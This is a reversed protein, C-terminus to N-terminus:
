QQAIIKTKHGISAIVLYLGFAIYAPLLGVNSLVHVVIGFVNSKTWYYISALVIGSLSLQVSFFFGKSPIHVAGFLLSSVVIVLLAKSESKHFLQILFNIFLGRIVLEEIAASVGSIPTYWIPVHATTEGYMTWLVLVVVSLLIPVISKRGLTLGLLGPGNETRHFVYGCYVFWAILMTSAIIMLISHLTSEPMYTRTYNSATGIICYPIFLITFIIIETQKVTRSEMGSRGCFQSLREAVIWEFLSDSAECQKAHGVASTISERNRRRGEPPPFEKLLVCGV